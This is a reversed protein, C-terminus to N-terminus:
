MRLRRVRVIVGGLLPVSIGAVADARKRTITFVTESM